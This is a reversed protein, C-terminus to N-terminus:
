NDITVYVCTPSETRKASSHVGSHHDTCSAGAWYNSTHLTTGARFCSIFLKRSSHGTHLPTWNRHPWWRMWQSHSVPVFVEVVSAEETFFVHIYRGSSDTSPKTAGADLIDDRARCLVLQDCVCPQTVKQLTIETRQFSLLGKSTAPSMLACWANYNQTWACKSSLPNIPLLQM